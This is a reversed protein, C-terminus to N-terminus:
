QLNYESMSTVFQAFQSMFTCIIDPHFQKLVTMVGIVFCTGDIHDSPRKGMLTSIHRVYILKSLNSNTLMFLATGVYKLSKTEVYIKEYPNYIGAWELYKNLEFLLDEGPHSKQCDLEHSRLQHLVSSFTLINKKRNELNRNM